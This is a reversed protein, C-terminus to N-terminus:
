RGVALRHFLDDRFRGEQVERDLDRRTAALVRVNVRISRNGGIRRVEGRELARLLKPQLLLDLDGIEDIFFTGGAAEEFVGPRPQVAGTFAGREYGFLVSEALNPPITTCDLVVFPGGRRAGLDHISEALVEKGTGTEG